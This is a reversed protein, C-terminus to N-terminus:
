RPSADLILVERPEAPILAARDHAPDAAEEPLLARYVVVIAGSKAGSSLIKTASPKILVLRSASFDVTPPEGPFGLLVWSTALSRADGFVLGADPSVRGSAPATREKDASVENAPASLASKQLLTPAPANLKPAAPATMGSLM